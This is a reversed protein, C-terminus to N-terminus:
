RWSAANGCSPCPPHPRYIAAAEAFTGFGVEERCRREAVASSLLAFDDPSMGAVMGAFPNERPM